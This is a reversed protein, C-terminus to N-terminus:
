CNKTRKTFHEIEDLMTQHNLYDVTISLLVGNHQLRLSPYSTVGLKRATAIEDLLLAQIEDSVMDSEFRKVDLDIISACELLTTMLSPNKAQQYYAQQIAKIMSYEAELQQKKAALVARCAPYTSRMPTNMTWFEHNFKVGSVTQEIRYWTQQIMTQLSPPMVETTDSALGGVLNTLQIFSPLDQRLASLKKEFAYCWSCMPDHIYFLTTESM